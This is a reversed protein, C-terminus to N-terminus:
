GRSACRPIPSEKLTRCMVQERKGPLGRRGPRTLALNTLAFASVCPSTSCRASLWVSYCRNFCQSDLMQHWYRTTSVLFYEFFIIEGVYGSSIECGEKSVGFYPGLDSKQLGFRAVLTWVAILIWVGSVIAIFTTKNSRRRLFVLTFVHIAIVLFRRESM